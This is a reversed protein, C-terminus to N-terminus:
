IARTILRELWASIILLMAAITRPAMPVVPM